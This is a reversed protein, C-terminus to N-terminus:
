SYSMALLVIAAIVGTVSTLVLLTFGLDSEVVRGREVYRLYKPLLFAMLTFLLAFATAMTSLGMARYGVTTPFVAYYSLSSPWESLVILIVVTSIAMSSKLLFSNFSDFSFMQAVVGRSVRKKPPM